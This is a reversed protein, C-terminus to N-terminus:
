VVISNFVSIDFDSYIEKSDRSNDYAESVFAKFDGPCNLIRGGHILDNEEVKLGGYNLRGVKKGFSMAEYMVSSNEGLVFEYRSLACFSETTNDVVQVQENGKIRDLMEQTFKEQPHCRIHFRHEPYLAALEIVVDLIKESIHPESIVLTTQHGFPPLNLSSVYHKFPFGINRLREEPIGFQPGLNSKGFTFFYDTDLKDCYSGSYLETEGVTVGHQLEITKIKLKKCLAIVYYYTQRPAVFVQRPSVRSLVPNFLKCHLQFDALANEFVLLMRQQEFAFTSALLNCLKILEMQYKKRVKRRYLPRLFLALNDIADLYVVKNQHLRPRKHIGNQHREFILYDDGIGSYEILPDSLRDMYRDGVLYLRPHPFFVTGVTRGSFRLRILAGLSRFSNTLQEGIRVEPKVSFPKEGLIEWRFLLRVIRWVPVGEVEIQDLGKISQELILYNHLDM